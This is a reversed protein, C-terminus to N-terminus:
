KSLVPSRWRISALMEWALAASTNYTVIHMGKVHGYHPLRAAYEVKLRHIRVDTCGRDVPKKTFIVAYQQM